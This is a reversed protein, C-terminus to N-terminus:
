TGPRWDRTAPSALAIGPRTLVIKQQRYLSGIAQKFANKSADFRHRILEPSSDDDIDLRGNNDQLAELIEDALSHVRPRASSELTLNLKGDPRIDSIFGEIEQGPFPAKVAPSHALLGTHKGEVICGWGLKTERAVILHVAQGRKYTDPEPVPLYRQFRQTAFLRNSQEDLCVLVVVDEGPYLPSAQERLPLLLDKTLGWDLFAGLHPDFDRVGLVAIEGLKALPQRLTATLRDESDRYLFVDLEEGMSTGQPVEGRPLLVEGLEGADLYVGHQTERISRLLNRTGLAAM